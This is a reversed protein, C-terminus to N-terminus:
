RLWVNGNCGKGRGAKTQLPPWLSFPAHIIRLFANHQTHRCHDSHCEHSVPVPPRTLRAFQTDDDGGRMGMWWCWPGWNNHSSHGGIIITILAWWAPCRGVGWGSWWWGREKRPPQLKAVQAFVRGTTIFSPPQTGEQYCKCSARSSMHEEPPTVPYFCVLFGPFLLGRGSHQPCFSFDKSLGSVVAEKTQRASSPPILRWM